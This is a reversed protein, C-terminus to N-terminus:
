KANDNGKIQNNVGKIWEKYKDPFFYKLESIERQSIMLRERVFAEAEPYEDEKKEKGQKKTKTYIWPPTSKFHNSMTGHWWDIVHVPEIKSRNFQNAQIPFQISMIRNIMFFNRNKDANTVKNWDKKDFIKKIIDFLEM